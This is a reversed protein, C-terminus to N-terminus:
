VFCKNEKYEEQTKMLCKVLLWNEFLCLIYEALISFHVTSLLM